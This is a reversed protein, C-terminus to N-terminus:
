KWDKPINEIKTAIEPPVALDKVKIFGLIMKLAAVRRNGEKVIKEKGSKLLIVSETPIYGDELLSDALAWFRDPAISVMAHIATAEDSQAVTRFNKLDLKLEKIAITATTPM